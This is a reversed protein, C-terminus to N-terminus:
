GGCQCGGVGGRFGGDDSQGFGGGGFRQRAAHTDVGHERADRLERVGTAPRIEDACDALHLLAEVALREGVDLIAVDDAEVADPDPEDAGRVVVLQGELGERDLFGLKVSAFMPGYGLSKSSISFPFKIKSQAYCLQAFGLLLVAAFAKLWLM